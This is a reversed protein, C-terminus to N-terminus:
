HKMSIREISQGVHSAFDQLAEKAQIQPQVALRRRNSDLKAQAVQLKKTKIRIKAAM